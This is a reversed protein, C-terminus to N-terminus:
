YKKSQSDYFLLLVFNSGATRDSHIGVKLVVWRIEIHKKLLCLSELALNIHLYTGIYLMCSITYFCNLILMAGM